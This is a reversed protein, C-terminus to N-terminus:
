RDPLAHSAPKAAGSGIFSQGHVTQRLPAAVLRLTDGDNLRVVDRPRAEPIPAGRAASPLFPTAAPFPLGMEAPMMALGAPM